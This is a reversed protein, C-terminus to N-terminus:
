KQRMFLLEHLAISRAGDKVRIVCDLLSRETVKTALEGDPPAVSIQWNMGDGFEGSQSGISSPLDLGIREILSRARVLMITQKELSAARTGNESTILLVTSVAIALVAMAVLAETLVVGRENPKRFRATLGVSRIPRGM